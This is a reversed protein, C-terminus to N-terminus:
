KYVEIKNGLSHVSNIHCRLKLLLEKIVLDTDYPDYFVEQCGLCKIKM